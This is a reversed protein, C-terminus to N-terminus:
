ERRPTDYVARIGREQSVRVNQTEQLYLVRSQTQMTNPEYIKKREKHSNIQKFSKKSDEKHKRQKKM